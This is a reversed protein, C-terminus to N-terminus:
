RSNRLKLKFHPHDSAIVNPSNMRATTSDHKRIQWSDPLNKLCILRYLRRKQEKSLQDKMKEVLDPDLPGPENLIRHTIADLKHDINQEKSHDSLLLEYLQYIMEADEPDMVLTQPDDDYIDPQKMEEDLEWENVDDFIGHFDTFKIWQIGLSFPGPLGDALLFGVSQLSSLDPPVQQMTASSTKKDAFVMSHQGPTSLHFHSMPLIVTEWEFPQKKFNVRLKYLSSSNASLGVPSRIRLNLQWNRHDVLIRMAIWRYGESENFVQRDFLHQRPKRHRTTLLAAYGTYLVPRGGTALSKRTDRAMSIQGHFNMYRNEDFDLQPNSSITEKELNCDKIDAFSSGGIVQDTGIGWHDILKSAGLKRSDFVTFDNAAPIKKFPRLLLTDSLINTIERVSERLFNVASYRRLFGLRTGIKHNSKIFFCLRTQYLM